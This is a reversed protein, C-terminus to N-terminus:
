KPPEVPVAKKSRKGLDKIGRASIYGKYFQNDKNQFQIMLTDMENVLLDDVMKFLKALKDIAAAKNAVAAERNGISNNYVTVYGNLEDIDSSTFGYEKVEGGFQALLETITTGKIALETDRLRYLGSKNVKAKAMLEADKKSRGLSYLAGGAEVLKDILRAEAEIKVTAKGATTTVKTMGVTKIQNMLANLGAKGKKLAPIESIKNENESLYTHVGEYMSLKNEQRNTM